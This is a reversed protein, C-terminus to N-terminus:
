TLNTHKVLRVDPFSQSFRHFGYEEWEKDPDWVQRIRNLAEVTQIEIAGGLLTNLSFLDGADLGEINITSTFYLPLAGLADVVNDRLKTRPDSEPMDRRKPAIPPIPGAPITM